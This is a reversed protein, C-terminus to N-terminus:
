FNVDRAERRDRERQGEATIQRRESGDTDRKGGKEDDDKKRIRQEKEKERIYIILHLGNAAKVHILLSVFKAYFIFNEGSFNQQNPFLEYRQM